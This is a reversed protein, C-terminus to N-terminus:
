IKEEVELAYDHIRNFIDKIVEPDIGHLNALAMKSELVSNWRDLALPPINHAKKYDGVKNVVSMRDAILDVIQKDIEDIQKRYEKLQDENM